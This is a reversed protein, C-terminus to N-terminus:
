YGLADPGDLSSSDLLFFDEGLPAGIATFEWSDESITWAISELSLEKSFQAGTDMPTIEATIRECLELDLLTAWPETVHGGGPVVIPQTRWVPDKRQFVLGSAMDAAAQSTSLVTDISVAKAGVAAV